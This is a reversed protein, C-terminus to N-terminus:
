RNIQKKLTRMANLTALILIGVDAFLAIWMNAYGLAGLLLVLGKSSLSFIINQYVIRMTKKATRIASIVSSPRDNMLVIDSAEIAVDSGSSGMAISVDAISMVPADNIGDGIFAVYSNKEKDEIIKEIHSVKDAPLLSAHIEDIGLADAVKKASKESDGTLMVTKKIGLAKAECIAQMADPKIKDSLTLYGLYEGDRAVHVATLDTKKADISNERMLKSNGVLTRKGDIIASVGMGAIEECSSVKTRDPINTVCSVVSLAIPHNSCSEALAALELLEDKSINEPCIESVTFIGETLTGTKDFVLTSTKSLLEIYSAGKILIGNRSAGGIGGFFSLPVSIVLACPCSVVLFILARNLWENFSESFLLPPLALLLVASIVVIPTYYRAFKTIFNEVKAKKTSSEGVLTLIKAVTSETYSGSVKVKIVGSLNMSGSMIKDGVSCSKPIPEGTLASTDLDTQGDIIEGDLPVREGARIIIVEGAAVDEPSVTMEKEDRIVRASDSRLAALAKIERRSKGVAIAQFLEGVQYLIIVLLAEPYEKIFFAGISALSMLFNEDFVEGHFINILSKWIVDYSIIAYAILYLILKYPEGLPAFAAVILVLTSIIIRLLTRKQRKTMAEGRIPNNPM